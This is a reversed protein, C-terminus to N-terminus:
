GVQQVAEDLDWYSNSVRRAVVGPRATTEITHAYVNRVIPTRVGRQSVEWSSLRALKGNCDVVVGRLM